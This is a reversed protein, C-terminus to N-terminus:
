RVPLAPPGLHTTGFNRRLAPVGEPRGGGHRAGRGPDLAESGAPDQASGAPHDRGDEPQPSSRMGHRVRRDYGPDPGQHRRALARDRSHRVCQLDRPLRASRTEKRAAVVTPHERRFRDTFWRDLLTDVVAPPGGADILKVFAALNAFAEPSRFAATSILGLSRVRRPHARAYAPAIMGGLSHGIVHAKDIELQVRLAELDAVFADLGFPQDAGDSGGHGRLDYSICRYHPALRDVVKDWVQGRAGVGHVLLVAPGEGAISYASHVATTM